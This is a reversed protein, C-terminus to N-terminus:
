LRLTPEERIDFMGFGQSNKAGLGCSWLVALLNPDTDIRIDGMYGTVLTGKFRTVRDDLTEEYANAQFPVDAPLGFAEGKRRANQRVLSLWKPETPSYPVTHGDELTDYAVVPTRMRMVCSPPFLLWDRTELGTLDFDHAGIRIVDRNTLSGACLDMLEDIYSRVELRVYKFFKITRAKRDPSCRGELRGFVFPRFQRGDGLSFDHLEPLDSAWCSYLLGQVLENYAM